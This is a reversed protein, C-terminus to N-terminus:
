RRAFIGSITKLEVVCFTSKMDAHSDGFFSNSKASYFLFSYKKSGDSDCDGSGSGDSSGCFGTWSSCTGKGCSSGGLENGITSGCRNDINRLIRPKTFRRIFKPFDIVISTDCELLRAVEDIDGISFKVLSVECFRGDVALSISALFCIFFQVQSSM